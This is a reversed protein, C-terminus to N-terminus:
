PSISGPPQAAETPVSTIRRPLDDRVLFGGKIQVVGGGLYSGFGAAPKWQFIKLPWGSAACQTLRFWGGAPSNVSTSM